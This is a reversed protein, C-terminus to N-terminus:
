QKYRPKYGSYIITILKTGAIYEIYTKKDKKEYKKFTNKSLHEGTEKDILLCNVHIRM